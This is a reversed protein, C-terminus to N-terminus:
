AWPYWRQHCPTIHDSASHTFSPAHTGGVQAAVALLATATLTLACILDPRFGVWRATAIVASLPLVLSPHSPRASPFLTPNCGPLHFTLMMSCVHPEEEHRWMNTNM